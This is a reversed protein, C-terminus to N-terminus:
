LPGLPDFFRLAAPFDWFERRIGPCHFLGSSMNDAGEHLPFASTYVREMELGAIGMEARKLKGYATRALIETVALSFGPTLEVEKLDWRSGEEPLQRM